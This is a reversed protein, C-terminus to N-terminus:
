CDFRVNVYLKQMGFRWGMWDGEQAKQICVESTLKKNPDAVCAPFWVPFINYGQAAPKADWMM